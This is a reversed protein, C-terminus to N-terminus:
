RFYCVLEEEEEVEEEGRGGGKDVHIGLQQILHATIKRTNM